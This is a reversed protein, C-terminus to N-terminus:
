CVRFVPSKLNMPTGPISITGFDESFMPSAINQSNTPMKLPPISNDIVKGSSVKSNAAQLTLRLRMADGEAKENDLLTTIERCENEKKELKQKSEHLEKHLNDIKQQYSKESDELIMIHEAQLNARMVAMEAQAGKVHETAKQIQDKSSNELYDYNDSLQSYKLKVEQLEEQLTTISKENFELQNKQNTIISNLENKQNTIISNLEAEKVGFNRTKERM